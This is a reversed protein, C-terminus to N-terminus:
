LAFISGSDHGQRVSPVPTNYLKIDRFTVTLDCALVNEENKLSVGLLIAYVPELPDQSLKRTQGSCSM